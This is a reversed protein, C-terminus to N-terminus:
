REYNRQFDFYYFIKRFFFRAKILLLKNYKLIRLDRELGICILRMLDSFKWFVACFKNAFRDSKILKSPARHATRGDIMRRLPLGNFNLFRFDLINKSPLTPMFYGQIRGAFPFPELRDTPFMQNKPAMLIVVSLLRRPQATVRKM